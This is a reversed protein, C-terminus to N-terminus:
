GGCPKKATRTWSVIRRSNEGGILTLAKKLLPEGSRQQVQEMLQGPQMKM